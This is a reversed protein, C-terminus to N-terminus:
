VVQKKEIHIHGKAIGSEALLDSMLSIFGDIQKGGTVARRSGYDKKGTVRGQNQSQRQRTRWFQRVAARVREHLDSM